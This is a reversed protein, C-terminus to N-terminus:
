EHSLMIHMVVSQLYTIIIDLDLTIRPYIIEPLIYIIPLYIRFIHLLTGSQRTVSSEKWQRTVLLRFLSTM